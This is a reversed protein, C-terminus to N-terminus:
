TRVKTSACISSSDNDFDFACTHDLRLASWPRRSSSHTKKTSKKTAASDEQPSSNQPAKQLKLPRFSPTPAEAPPEPLDLFQKPAQLLRQTECLIQAPRHKKTKNISVKAPRGYQLSVDDIPPRRIHSTSDTETRLPAYGAHIKAGRHSATDGGPTHLLYHIYTTTPCDWEQEAFVTLARGPDM